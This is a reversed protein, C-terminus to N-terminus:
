AHDRDVWAVQVFHSPSGYADIVSRIEVIELNFPIATM